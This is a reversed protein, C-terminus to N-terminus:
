VQPQKEGQELVSLASRNSRLNELAEDRAREALTVWHGAHGAEWQWLWEDFWVEPELCESSPTDCIPCWLADRKSQASM